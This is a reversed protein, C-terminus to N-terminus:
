GPKEDAPWLPSPEVAAPWVARGVRPPLASVSRGVWGAEGGAAAAVSKSNAPQQARAIPRWPAGALGVFGALFAMRVLRHSGKM